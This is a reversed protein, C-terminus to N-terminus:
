SRRPFDCTRGNWWPPHQRQLLLLLLGFAVYDTAMQAEVQGLTRPRLPHSSAHGVPFRQSANQKKCPM